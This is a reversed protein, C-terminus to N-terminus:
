NVNSTREVDDDQLNPLVGTQKDLLKRKRSNKKIKIRESITKIECVEDIKRDDCRPIVKWKVPILISIFSAFQAVIYIFPWVFLYFFVKFNARINKHERILTCLYQVFITLYQIGFYTLIQYVVNMTELPNVVLTYPIMALPYVVGVLFSIIFIPTISMTMDYCSFRKQIQILASTWFSEKQHTDINKRNKSWDKPYFIGFLNSLCHKLFTFLGGKTWRMKQRMVAKMTIPNECYIHASEVYTNRYGKATYDASLEADESLGIWKWGDHLIFNRVLIGTGPMIMNVGLVSKPRYITSNLAFYGISRYSSFLGMDCNKSDLYSTYFDYRKNDFAKNMEGVFNKALCCDADVVFYGDFSYVGNETSNKITEICHRLAFGKRREKPNNYEIVNAGANRAIQATNDTCNHAIVFISIKDAPYDQKKISDIVQNIVKEENRAAILIAYNYKNKTAKFKKSPIIFGFVYLVIQYAALIGVVWLIVNMLQYFSNMIAENKQHRLLIDFVCFIHLRIQCYETKQQVTDCKAKCNFLLIYIIQETM